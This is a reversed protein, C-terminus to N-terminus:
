LLEERSTKKLEAIIKKIDQAHHKNAVLLADKTEVVIIDKLGITACFKDTYVLSDKSDIHIGESNTVMGDPHETALTKQVTAWDGIDSWGMDSPVVIMKPPKDKWVFEIAEKPFSSFITECNKQDKLAAALENCKDAFEPNSERLITSLKKPQFFRYGTNWLYRWSQVLQEARGKEPKEIFDKVVFAKGAPSDIQTDNMEIYGLGSHAYTPKTGICAIADDHKQAVEYATSITQDFTTEEQVLHDAWFVGLIPNEYKAQMTATAFAFAPGTDKAEPEVLIQQDPLGPLAEKVMPVYKETVQIYIHKKDLTRSLHIYMREITSKDGIIRQFQKPSAQTSMPWLRTGVGGAFIVACQTFPTQM